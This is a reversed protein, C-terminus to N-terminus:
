GRRLMWTLMRAEARLLIEPTTSTHPWLHIAAAVRDIAAVLVVAEANADSHLVDPNRELIRDTLEELIPRAIRIVLQNFRANGRDGEMNRYHLLPAHKSWLDCYGRVLALADEELRDEVRLFDPQPFLNTPARSIEEWLGWLLDEINDFYVYFTAPSTRAEKCIAAASLNLPSMQDLLRRTAMMLALRTEQGKKGQLGSRKPPVTRNRLGAKKLPDSATPEDQVIKPKANSKM